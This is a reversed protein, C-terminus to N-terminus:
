TRNMLPWGTPTMSAFLFREAVVDGGNLLLGALVARGFKAVDTGASRRQGEEVFGGADDDAEGVLAVRLGPGALDEGEVPGLREDSPGKLASGEAGPKMVQRGEVGGLDAGDDAGEAFFERLNEWVASVGGAGELDRFGEDEGLGIGVGAKM